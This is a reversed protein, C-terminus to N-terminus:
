VINQHSFSLSRGYWHLTRLPFLLLLIIVLARCENQTKRVQRNRLSEHVPRVYRARDGAVVDGHRVMRFDILEGNAGVMKVPRLVRDAAAAHRPSRARHQMIFTVYVSRALKTETLYNTSSERTKNCYDALYLVNPHVDDRRREHFQSPLEVTGVPYARDDPEL